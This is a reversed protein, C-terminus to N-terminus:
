AKPLTIEFVAGDNENYAEVSGKQENLIKKVISLGVGMGGQPKSSVFPEFIDEIIESDIGGANDSFKVVINKDSESCDIHLKRDEFSDKKQLEDLANNIIVVWVQGIRQEHLMSLCKFEERQMNMSFEKKNIFIKCVHKSRNYALILSTILTSYVNILEKDEKTHQAMERMSEVISSIRSLGDEVPGLDDVLQEKLKSDPLDEIDMRMLEVNGKIYTLPTNIEHTIGASLQGIASFKVDKLRQEEHVKEQLSSKQVEEEVRQQLYAEQEEHRTVDVMACIYGDYEEDRKLATKFFEFIKVINDKSDYIEKYHISDKYLLELDKKAHIAAMYDESIEEKTYNIINEKKQNILNLYAKNCEINKNNKDKVFVPVPIADLFIELYELSQKLTKNLEKVTNNYEIQETIDKTSWIVGGSSLEKSKDSPAGSIEIWIATGDKKKVKFSINVFLSKRTKYSILKNLRKYSNESIHLIAVNKGILEHELYGFMECFIHNVSLINSYKDVILFGIMSSEFYLRSEKLAKTVKEHEANMKSIFRTIEYLMLSIVGSALILLYYATQKSEQLEVEIFRSTFIFFFVIGLATLGGYIRYKFM